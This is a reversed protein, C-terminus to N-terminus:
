LCKWFWFNSVEEFYKWVMYFQFGENIKSKMQFGGFKLSNIRYSIDSM